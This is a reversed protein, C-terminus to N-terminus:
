KKLKAENEVTQPDQLYSGYVHDWDFWIGSPPISRVWKKKSIYKVEEGPITINYKYLEFISKGLSMLKQRAVLEQAQKKHWM